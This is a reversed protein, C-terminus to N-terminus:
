SQFAPAGVAGLLSNMTSCMKPNAGLAVTPPSSGGTKADGASATLPASDRAGAGSDVGGGAAGYTAVGLGAGAAGEGTWTVGNDL